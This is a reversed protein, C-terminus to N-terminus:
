PQLFTEQNCKEGMTFNNSVLSLNEIMWKNKDFKCTPDM